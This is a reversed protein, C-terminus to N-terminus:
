KPSVSVPPFFEKSYHKFLLSDDDGILSNWDHRENFYHNTRGTYAKNISILKRHRPYRTFFSGIRHVGFTSIPYVDVNSSSFICIETQFKLSVEAYGVM